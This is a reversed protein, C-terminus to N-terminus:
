GFVTVGPELTLIGKARGAIPNAADGGQDDGIDVRGSVSYVTGDRKPVVLTGTVKAPLQCNRVSNNNITGVNSFGAPCDTAPGGTAPPPPNTSPPPPTTTPPPPFAGEGPSAVRDAGGGCASLALTAAFAALLTKSNSRCSM